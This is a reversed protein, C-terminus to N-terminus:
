SFLSGGNKIAVVIVAVALALITFLVILSPFVRGLSDESYGDPVGTFSLNVSRSNYPGTLGNLFLSKQGDSASVSSTFTYNTSPVIAGSTANTVIPTGQYNAYGAIELSSGAAPLTVTQNIVTSLSTLQATNGAIGGNGVLLTTGVIIAFAIMILSGIGAIQGKNNM